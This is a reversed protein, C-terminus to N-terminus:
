TLPQVLMFGRELCLYVCYIYSLYISSFFRALIHLAMTDSTVQDLTNRLRKGLIDLEQIIIIQDGTPVDLRRHGVPLGWISYIESQNAWVPRVASRAVAATLLPEVAHLTNAVAIASRKM